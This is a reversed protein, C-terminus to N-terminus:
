TIVSFLSNAMPSFFYRSFNGSAAQRNQQLALAFDGAASVSIM